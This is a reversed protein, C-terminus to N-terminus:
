AHMAAGAALAKGNMVLYRAHATLGPILGFDETVPPVKALSRWYNVRELWAPAPGAPAPSALAAVPAASIPVTAKAPGAVVHKAPAPTVLTMPTAIERPQGREHELIAARQLATDTIRNLLYETLGFGAVILAVIALLANRLATRRV